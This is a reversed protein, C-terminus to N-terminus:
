SRVEISDGVAIALGVDHPRLYVGFFVGRDCRRYSALTKLPDKFVEGTRPDVNVMGCRVTKGIPIFTGGRIKVLKWDDEEYAETRQVVVNPRFRERSALENALAVDAGRQWIKKALDECSADAVLHLPSADHCQIPMEKHTRGAFAAVLRCEIGLFRRFWAAPADGQDLATFRDGHVSVQRRRGVIEGLPLAMAPMSPASLILTSNRVCTKVLCLKPVTRQTLCEGTEDVVMFLRDYLFGSHEIIARDIKCGGCSKVPYIYLAAVIPM